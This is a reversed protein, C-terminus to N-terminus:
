RIEVSVMNGNHWLALTVALVSGLWATLDDM